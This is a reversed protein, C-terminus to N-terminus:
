LTPTMKKKNRKEIKQTNKAISICANPLHFDLMDNDCVCACMKYTCEEPPPQKKLSYTDNFIARPERTPGM